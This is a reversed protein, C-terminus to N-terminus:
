FKRGGEWHRARPAAFDHEANKARMKLGNRWCCLPGAEASSRLTAGQKKRLLAALQGLIVSSKETKKTISLFPFLPATAKKEQCIKFSVINDGITKFSLAKFELSGKASEIEPSLLSKCFLARFEWIHSFQFATTLM